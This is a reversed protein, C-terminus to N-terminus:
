DHQVSPIVGPLRVTFESGKGVGPSRAQITGGHQKVIQYAIALGVGLGGPERDAADPGRTFLDFIRPLTAPDIGMGTDEIRLLVESAEQTAKCWVQGGQPTYKIANSVLNQIVQAFRARDLEVPLAGSPLVAQLHIGREAAVPAFSAVQDQLVDKLDVREKQLVVQGHEARVAHLLDDALRALTQVQARIIVAKRRVGEDHSGRELLHATNMLPALPNRMEHGLTRLVGQIADAQQRLGALEHENSEAQIRLDTRDRVVKLYGLLQGSADRIAEVAGSAWIRTGDKRVHWRDDESRSREEAMALEHEDLGRQRDEDTFLLSAPTGIVEAETYGFIEEAAGKWGVIRGQPDLYIFGFQRTQEHWGRLLSAIFEDDAQDAM